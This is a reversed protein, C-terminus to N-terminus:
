KIKRYGKSFSKALRQLSCLSWFYVQMDFIGLVKNDELVAIAGSLGPDIGLIKM